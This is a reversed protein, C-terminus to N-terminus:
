FVFPKLDLPLSLGSLSFRLNTSLGCQQTVKSFGDGLHIGAGKGRADEAYEVAKEDNAFTAAPIPTM